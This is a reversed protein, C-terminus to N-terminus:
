GDFGVSLAEDEQRDPGYSGPEAEDVDCAQIVSRHYSCARDCFKWVAELAKAPPSAFMGREPEHKIRAYTNLLYM